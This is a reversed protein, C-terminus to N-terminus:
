RWVRSSIPTLWFVVITKGSGISSILANWFNTGSLQGGSCCSWPREKSPAGALAGSMSPPVLGFPALHASDVLKHLVVLGKGLAEVLAVQWQRGGPLDRDNGAHVRPQVRIRDEAKRDPVCVHDAVRAAHDCIILDAGERDGLM